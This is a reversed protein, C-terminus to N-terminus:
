VERWKKMQRYDVGPWCAGDSDIGLLRAQIEWFLINKNGTGSRVSPPTNNTL